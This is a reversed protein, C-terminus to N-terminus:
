LFDSILMRKERSVIDVIADPALDEMRYYSMREILIQKYNGHRSSAKATQEVDIFIMRIKNIWAQNTLNILEDRIDSFSTMPVNARGDSILVLMPMVEPNKRKEVLLMELGKQLGSSLPTPGGSALNKLCQIGWDLSACIPLIVEGQHERFTVMGVKDRKQYADVLMSFVAGKASEMRESTFMSGSADVVFVTPISIKGIRVKERIDQEEIKIRVGKASRSRVYCSAARITADLAIDACKESPIRAKVYNGRKSCFTRIRRGAVRKRVIKDKEFCKLKKPDIQEGISFVKEEGASDEPRIAYSDGGEKKEELSVKRNSNNLKKKWEEMKKDLKEKDLVPPEFPKRRMRHPLTLFLAERVDDIQVEKRGALAAMAKATRLTAIEARHTKIDFDMCISIIVEVLKEHIKVEKLISIAETIKKALEQQLPAYKEQVAKPDKDFENILNVIAIREEPSGLGEVSVQLGFRDLLQPRIEGEEPNMTGILSFNAPHAVEIGEREIYNIGLAAADLLLDAIHDDLLNIEDVYLIGRNVAALLGPELSKIGKKIARELDLTGVVRDETAGLPLDVVRVKRKVYDLKEGKEWKSYCESCLGEPDRPDCSFPCEKVVEIEPLLEALGRVATSKATGKGGRILVGGIKPDVVNLILAKKMELQGVIATFPILRKTKAVM